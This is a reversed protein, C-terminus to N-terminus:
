TYLQLKMITMLVILCQIELGKKRQLIIRIQLIQLALVNEKPGEIIGFQYLLKKMMNLYLLPPLPPPLNVPTRNMMKRNERLKLKFINMWIQIILTTKFIIVKQTSLNHTVSLYAKMTM